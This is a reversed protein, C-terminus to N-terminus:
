ATLASPAAQIEDLFLLTQGPVIKEGTLLKLVTQIHTPDNSAFAKIYEPNREFNIELLSLGQADAFQRVLTSKGM